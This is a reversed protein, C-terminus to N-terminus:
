QSIIANIEDMADITENESHNLMYIDPCWRQTWDNYCQQLGNDLLFKEAGDPDFENWDKEIEARIADQQEQPYLRLDVIKLVTDLTELNEPTMKKNWLEKDVMMKEFTKPGLGKFAKINDSTDGVLAKELLINENKEIMVKKIPNFQSVTDWYNMIQSLDKDNSVIRVEEGRESYYKCVGYICDDGEALPVSLIKCHFNKLFENVKEYCEGIFKYDPNEARNKRNEKYPPWIRRRIESSGKGEECFYVDKYTTLYQMVSRAYLHWFMGLDDHTIEYDKGKEKKMSTVMAGYCINIINSNDIACIM